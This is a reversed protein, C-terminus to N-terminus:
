DYYYKIPNTREEEDVSAKEGHGSYLYCGKYEFLKKASNCLDKVNGGPFDVRGFSGKFLVDGCFIKDKVKYSISGKTHGPTFITQVEIEGFKLTEGGQLATKLKFPRTEEGFFKSLNLSGDLIAPEDLAGLYVDAGREYFKYVGGIHDFHAHTLLVAKITFGHKLEEMMLFGADAGIDIAVANKTTEDILIYCNTQLDGLSYTKLIM